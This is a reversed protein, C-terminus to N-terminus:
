NEFSDYLMQIQAEHARMQTFIIELSHSLALVLEKVQQSENQVNNYSEKQTQTLQYFASIVKFLEGFSQAVSALMKLNEKSMLVTEKVDDGLRVTHTTLSEVENRLQTQVLSIAELVDSTGSSLKRVEEAVVNFGRGHEGARAAEISANLALMNIQVSIASIKSLESQVEDTARM